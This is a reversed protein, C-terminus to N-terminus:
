SLGAEKDGIREQLICKRVASDGILLNWHRIVCNQASVKSPPTVLDRALSYFGATAAILQARRCAKAIGGFFGYAHDALDHGPLSNKWIARWDQM